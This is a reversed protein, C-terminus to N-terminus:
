PNLKTTVIDNVARDIDNIMKEFFEFRRYDREALSVNSSLVLKRQYFITFPETQRGGTDVPFLNIFVDLKYIDTEAGMMFSLANIQETVKSLAAKEIDFVLRVPSGNTKFRNAAYNQLFAAPSAQFERSVLRTQDDEIFSQQIQVFGNRVSLAELHSFNIQPVPKAKPDLPSTCGALVFIAVILFAKNIINHRHM